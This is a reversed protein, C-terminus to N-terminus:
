AQNYNLRKGTMGEMKHTDLNGEMKESTPFTTTATDGNKTPGNSFMASQSPIKAAVEGPQAYKRDLIGMQDPRATPIPNKPMTLTKREDSETSSISDNTNVGTINANPNPAKATPAAVPGQATPAAAATPNMKNAYYAGPGTVDKKAQWDKYFKSDTSVGSKGPNKFEDQTHTHYKKGGYEFVNGGGGTANRAQSFADKFNKANEVKFPNKMDYAPAGAAPAPAGAAPSTVTSGAEAAKQNLSQDFDKDGTQSAQFTQATPAAVPGQATPAAATPVGLTQRLNSVANSTRDNMAPQNYKANQQEQFRGISEQQNMNPGSPLVGKGSPSVIDMGGRPNAIYNPVNAAAREEPTGRLLMGAPTAQTTPNQKIADIQSAQKRLEQIKQIYFKESKKVEKKDCDCDKCLCEKESAAMPYELDEKSPSKPANQKHTHLVDKLTEKREKEGTATVAKTRAIKKGTEYQEPNLEKPEREKPSRAERAKMKERPSLGEDIRAKELEHEKKVMKYEITHGCAESKLIKYQIKNDKM